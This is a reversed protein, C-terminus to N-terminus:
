KTYRGKRRKGIILAAVACLLCLASLGIWLGLRTEDGTTPTTDRNIKRNTFRAYATKGDRIVGTDDTKRVTYGENDGERVTYELGAPLGEATKREGHKLTFEARGNVFTMEGYKGNISQDSLTVVFTFAKTKDGHFGTVTKTVTLKGTKQTVIGNRTNTFAATKGATTIKGTEGNSVTTYGDQNAETEVVTYGTDVPLDSAKKSQGHKLTFRATGQEFTMEGYVGSISPDDLTVTFHFEKTRDGENGAVTKTVTLSGTPFIERSNEFAAVANVNAAIRGTITGSSPKSHWGTEGAETVTFRTGDPLGRIVIAEDHHLLVTDGSEVYGSKDLSIYYYTGPLKNGSSDMFDVTFAFSRTYDSAQLNTGSVTKSITLTGTNTETDPQDMVVVTNLLSFLSTLDDNGLDERQAMNHTSDLSSYNQQVRTRIFGTDTIFFPKNTKGGDSDHLGYDVLANLGYHLNMFRKVTTGALTDDTWGDLAFSGSEQRQCFATIDQLTVNVDGDSAYKVMTQTLKGVGAMVTVGDDAIGADAYISYTGVVVPIVTDNIEYGAPSNTERLYYMTDAANAWAMKAYGDTNAPVQPRFILIGDEGNVNATVGSTVPNTGFVADAKTRYLAFEAGNLHVGDQSVKQVRLERQENPVYIMSRFLRGFTSVDLFSFGMGNATGSDNVGLIRNAFSEVNADMNGAIANGLAKYRAEATNGTIRLEGLASPTIIAYVMRMDANVSNMLEYRDARGPLDTLYGELRGDSADWTLYWEPVLDDTSGMAMQYLAAKLVAKRRASKGSDTPISASFGNLNDGYVAVWTGDTQKLAPIAVVLGSSQYATSVTKGGSTVSGDDQIVGYHINGNGTVTSSFSAYSGTTWRNAVILMTTDFNYELVIDVPLSRYGEPSSTEKLIYYKNDRDAFNFPRLKGDSGTVAFNALGDTGTTLTALPAGTQKVYVLGASANTCPLAAPDNADAEVAEYLAFQVGSLPEGNQDVKKLEHYLQPQLNFRLRLSSDYNGRELYFMKLTHASNSSFTNGKWSVDDAKGAAEFLAKLNSSDVKGETTVQGGSRWSQGIAVEGTEFNITGYLESHIGGIDLVLVDDVFVWVDDDGSFEFTMPVNGSTGNNIVGNLPQNFDITVTMGLYHNAHFDNSENTIAESSSLINTLNGKGDAIQISDFVNSASDFPFFNGLSKDGDFTGIEHGDGDPDLEKYGGDTRWVAPGDYLTFSNSDENYEAFNQRANYYYYGQSDIQFLNKVNAYTQKGNTTEEPDFLYSLSAKECDGSVTDGTVTLGRANLLGASLGRAEGVGANQFEAHNLNAIDMQKRYPDPSWPADETIIPQTPNQLRKRANELNIRPYGNVLTSEVIGKMNTNAKGWPRGAGSGQNWFGAERMASGGFLLLADANIGDSYQTFTAGAPLVDNDDTGIEPDYDFLNVTVNDPQMGQVMHDAFDEDGTLPQRTGPYNAAMTQVGGVDLWVKLAPAEETLQYGEEVSAMLPYLTWQTEVSQQADPDTEQSLETIGLKQLDEETGIVVPEEELASDDWQIKVLAQSAEEGKLTGRIEDPLIEALVDRLAQLNQAQAEEATQDPNPEEVDVSPMTQSDSFLSDMSGLSLFWQGGLAVLFGECGEKDVWEWDTIYKVEPQTFTFFVSPLLVQDATDEESDTKVVVADFRTEEEKQLASREWAIKVTLDEGDQGPVRLTDPLQAKLLDDTWDEKPGPLTLHWAWEQVSDKEGFTFFVCPSPVDEGLPYESDMAADFRCIEEAKVNTLTLEPWTLSIEVSEENSLTAQIKGPLQKTFSDLLEKQEEETKDALDGASLNLYWEGNYEALAEEGNKWVWGTISVPEDPEEPLTLSLVVYPTPVNESLVYGNELTAELRAKDALAEPLTWTVTLAKETGDALTALVQTPLATKLDDLTPAQAETGTLALRWEGNDGTSVAAGAWTWGSISVTVPEVPAEPAEPEVPTEPAEPEVPTEPETLTLVACPAQVGADLVYDEAWAAALRYGDEASGSLTWTIALSVKEGSSLTALVETPLSDQLSDVAPIQGDTDSLALYWQGDEETLSSNGQWAWGTVYVPPDEAQVIPEVSDPINGSSETAFAQTINTSLLLVCLAACLIRRWGSRRLTRRGAAPAKNGIREELYM